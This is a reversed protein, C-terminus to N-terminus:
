KPTAAFRKILGDLTAKNGGEFFELMKQSEPDSAYGLMRTTVKTRKEDIPDFYVVTWTKTIATPFPFDKPPKVVRFSIMRGPDLTLIMQHISTDGDLDAGKRYATRMLGGIRLDIDGSGVMWSEVGARTTFAEWVRDVPANVIGETVVMDSAARTTSATLLTLVALAGILKRM